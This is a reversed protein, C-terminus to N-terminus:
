SESGGDTAIKQLPLNIVGERLLCGTRILELEESKPIEQEKM